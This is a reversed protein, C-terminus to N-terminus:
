SRRRERARARRARARLRQAAGQEEGGAAGVGLIRSPDRPMEDETERLEVDIEALREEAVKRAIQEAKFEQEIKLLMEEMQSNQARDQTLQTLQAEARAALEVEKVENWQSDSPDEGDQRTSKVTDGFEAAGPAEMPAPPDLVADETM